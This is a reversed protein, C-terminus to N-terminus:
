WRYSVTLAYWGEALGSTDESPIRTLALLYGVTYQEVTPCGIALPVIQRVGGAPGVLVAVPASLTSGQPTVTAAACRNAAVEGRVFRTADALNADRPLPFPPLHPWSAAPPVAMAQAALLLAAIM